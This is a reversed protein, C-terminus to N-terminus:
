SYISPGHMISNVDRGIAASYAPSIQEIVGKGDLITIPFPSNRMIDDAVELILKMWSLSRLVEESDSYKKEQITHIEAVIKDITSKYSPNTYYVNEISDKSRLTNTLVVLGSLEERQSLTLGTGNMGLRVQLIGGEPHSFEKRYWYYAPRSEGDLLPVNDMEIYRSTYGHTKQAALTFNRITEETYLIKEIAARSTNLLEKINMGIHELYPANAFQIISEEGPNKAYSVNFVHQGRALTPFSINETDFSTKTLVDILASGIQLSRKEEDTFYIDFM